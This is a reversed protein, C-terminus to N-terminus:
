PGFCWIEYFVLYKRLINIEKIKQAVWARIKKFQSLEYSLNTGYTFHSCPYTTDCERIHPANNALVDYKM